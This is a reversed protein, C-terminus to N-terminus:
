LPKVPYKKRLFKLIEPFFAKFDKHNKRKIYKEFIFNGIDEAYIFDGVIESAIQKRVQKPTKYQWYLAIVIGRVMNEDLCHQWSHINNNKMGADEKNLLYDLTAIEKSYQLLLSEIFIHSGEHWVLYSLNGLEFNPMLTDTSNEDFFGTNYAIVDSFAPNLNKTMIAHAGWSNLPDICIYWKAGANYKYFNNLKEVLGEAQLDGKLKGAWSAYMSENEKYFDDFKSDEAFQKALKMYEIVNEKGYREYWHLDTPEYIKINPFDSFCWGLEPFDSYLHQKEAIAKLKQVAAHNAYPTFYAKVKKSYISRNPERYQGAMWQIITFLEVGPHVNITVEPAAQASISNSPLNSLFAIM